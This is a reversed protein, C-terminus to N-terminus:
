RTVCKRDREIICDAYAIYHAHLCVCLVIGTSAPMPTAAASAWNTPDTAGGLTALTRALPEALRALLFSFVRLKTERDDCWFM